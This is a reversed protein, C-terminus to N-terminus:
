AQPQTETSGQLQQKMAEWDAKAQAVAQAYNAEFEAAFVPVQETQAAM